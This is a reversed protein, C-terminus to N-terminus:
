TMETVSLTAPDALALVQAAAPAGKEWRAAGASLSSVLKHEGSSLQPMTCAVVGPVKEITSLLSTAHVAHTFPLQWPGYADGLASLVDNRVRKWEWRPDRKVQVSVGFRLAEGSLVELRRIPDRNATLAAHLRDLLQQDPDTADTTRVSVVVRDQRGDWVTDARAIGIGPYGGAFRGHDDLSVARDLTSVRRPANVRAQDMTEPAAWGTAAAPNTVERVGLPRRPLQIIRDPEVAGSKGLGVRYIAVVNETGTPLRAGHEGDGFGVQATGDEALRLTYVRDAPTASGLDAIRLWEVGDVQVTLEPKSETGAGSGVFTLPSKRLPFTQFAASGDGSGLVQRVTEGHVARVVNGRVVVGRAPVRALDDGLTLTRRDGDGTCTQVTSSMSQPGEGDRWVLLVRHGSEFGPTFAPVTVQDGVLYGDAPESTADHEVSVCYVV